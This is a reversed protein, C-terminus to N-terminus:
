KSSDGDDGEKIMKIPETQIVNTPFPLRQYVNQLFHVINKNQSEIMMNSKLVNNKLRGIDAQYGRWAGEIGAIYAAMDYLLNVKETKKKGTPIIKGTKKYEEQDIEEKTMEVMVLAKLEEQVTEKFEILIQNMISRTNEKIVSVINKEAKSIKEDMMASLTGFDERTLVKM